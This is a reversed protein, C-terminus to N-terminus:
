EEAGTALDPSLIQPNLLGKSCQWCTIYICVVPIYGLLLKPCFFPLHRKSPALFYMQDMGM